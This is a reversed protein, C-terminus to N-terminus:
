IFGDFVRFMPLAPSWFGPVIEEGFWRKREKNNNGIVNEGQIFNEVPDAM